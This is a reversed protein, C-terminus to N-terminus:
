RSLSYMQAQLLTMDYQDTPVRDQFGDTSLLMSTLTVNVNNKKWSLTFILIYMCVPTHTTTKIQLLEEKEKAEVENAYM